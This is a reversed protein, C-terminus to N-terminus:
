RRNIQRMSCGKKYIRRRRSYKSKRTKGANKSRQQYKRVSSNRYWRGGVRQKKLVSYFKDPWENDIIPNKFSDIEPIDQTDVHTLTTVVPEQKKEVTFCSTDAIDLVNYRLGRFFTVVQWLSLRKYLIGTKLINKLKNTMIINKITSKLEPNGTTLVSAVFEKIQDHLLNKTRVLDEMLPAHKAKEAQLLTRKDIYEKDADQLQANMAELEAKKAKLKATKEELKIKNVPNDDLESIMKLLKEEDIEIEKKLENVMEELNDAFDAKDSFENRAAQIYKEADKVLNNKDEINLSKLSSLLRKFQRNKPIGVLGHSQGLLLKPSGDDPLENIMSEDAEAEADAEDEATNTGFVYVFQKLIHIVSFIDGIDLVDEDPFDSFDLSEIYGKWFLLYNHKTLLNRKQIEEIPVIGLDDKDSIDSLSYATHDENTTAMIYLGPYTMIPNQEPDGHQRAPNSRMPQGTKVHTESRRDYEGPNGGFFYKKNFHPNPVIVPPSYKPYDIESHTGLCMMERLLMELKPKSNHGNYKGFYADSYIQPILHTVTGFENSRCLRKFESILTKTVLKSFCIPRKTEIVPGVETPVNALGAMSLLNVHINTYDITHDARTPKKSPKIGCMESGHCSLYISVASKYHTPKGVAASAM